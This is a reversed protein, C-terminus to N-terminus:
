SLVFRVCVIGVAISREACLKIGGISKHDHRGFVIVAIGGSQFFQDIGGAFLPVGLRDSEDRVAADGASKAGDLLETLDEGSNCTTEIRSETLKWFAQCVKSALPQGASGSRQEACIDRM